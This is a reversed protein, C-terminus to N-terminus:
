DKTLNNLIIYVVFITILMLGIYFLRNNRLLLSKANVPQTQTEHIIEFMTNKMNILHQGISIQLINPPIVVSKNLADLKREETNKYFKIRKVQEDRFTKNFLALNFEGGSTDFDFNDYTPNKYKTLQDALNDFVTTDSDGIM